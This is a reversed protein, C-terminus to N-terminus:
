EPIDRQIRIPAGSYAHDLPDPGFGPIVEIPAATKLRGVTVGVSSRQGLLEVKKGEAISAMRVLNDFRDKESVSRGDGSWSVSDWSAGLLANITEILAYQYQLDTPVKDDHMAWYLDIDDMPM